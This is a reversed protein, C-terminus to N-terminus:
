LIIFNFFENMDEIFTFNEDPYLMTEWRYVLGHLYKASYTLGTSVYKLYSRSLQLMVRGSTGRQPSLLKERPLLPLYKGKSTLDVNQRPVGKCISSHWLWMASSDYSALMGFIGQLWQLLRIGNKTRDIIWLKTTWSKM